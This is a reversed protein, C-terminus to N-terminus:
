KNFDEIAENINSMEIKSLGRFYYSEPYNPEISIAKTFDETAKTHDKM